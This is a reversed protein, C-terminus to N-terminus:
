LIVLESQTISNENEHSNGAINEPLAYRFHKRLGRGTRWFKVNEGDIVAENIALHDFPQQLNRGAFTVRHQSEGTQSNTQSFQSQNQLTTHTHKNKLSPQPSHFAHEETDPTPRLSCNERTQHLHM